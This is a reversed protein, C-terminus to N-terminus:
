WRRAKFASEDGLHFAIEGTITGDRRFTDLWETNITKQWVALDRALAELDATM